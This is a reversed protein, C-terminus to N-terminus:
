HIKLSHFLSDYKNVVAVAGLCWSFAAGVAGVAFPCPAATHCCFEFAAELLAAYLCM